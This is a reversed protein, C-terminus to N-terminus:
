TNKWCSPVHQYRCFPTEKESKKETRKQERQKIQEGHERDDETRRKTRDPRGWWEDERGGVAMRKRDRVNGM